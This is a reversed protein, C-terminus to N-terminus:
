GGLICHNYCHENRGDAAAGAEALQGAGAAAGGGPSQPSPQPAGDGVVVDHLAAALSWWLWSGEKVGWGQGLRMGPWPEGEVTMAVSTRPPQQQM